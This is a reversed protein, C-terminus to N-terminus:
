AITYKGDPTRIFHKKNSLNQIITNRKVLRQEEVKVIIENRKLAGEKELIGRIVEKVEGSVYGWDALAYLGRGVLVFRPDKILENHTTQATAKKGLLRAVDRFHMPKGEKKIILYARDKIGRPNIEPWDYLGFFGDKNQAIRKSIELVSVLFDKSFDGKVRIEEFSLITKEKKFIEKIKETAEKLKEGEKKEKSWFAYFDKNNAKYYFKGSVDLLFIISNRNKKDEALFDLFLDERKIGGFKELEEKLFDLIYENKELLAKSKRVGDAEIQRVRERTIGYTGGIHELTEKKESYIGFRRALVNKMREDLTELIEECIKQYEYM